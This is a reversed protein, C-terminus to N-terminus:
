TAGSLASTRSRTSSQPLPSHLRSPL